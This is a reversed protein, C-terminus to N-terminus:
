FIAKRERKKNRKRKKEELEKTEIEIKNPFNIQKFNFRNDAKYRASSYISYVCLNFYEKSKFYNQVASDIGPADGVLIELNNKIMNDLRPYVKQPITKISISGSIFVKKM